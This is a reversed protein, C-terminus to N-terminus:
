TTVKEIEKVFNQGKNQIEQLSSTSESTKLIKIIEETSEVLHNKRDDIFDEFYLLAGKDVFVVSTQYDFCAFAAASYRTICFDTEELLCPLPLNTSEEFEINKIGKFATQIESAMSADTSPHFRYLWQWNQPCKNILEILKSTNWQHKVWQHIFLIKKDYKNNTNIINIKPIKIENNKYKQIWLNGGSIPKIQNTDSVKNFFSTQIEGWTVYYDPIFKYRINKRNWHLFHHTICGHQIDFTPIGLHKSAVMIAYSHISRFYCCTFVSIPSKIKLLYIYYKIYFFIDSTFYIFKSYDLNKSINLEDYIENISYIFNNIERLIKRHFFKFFINHISNYQNYLYLSTEESSHFDIKEASIPEQIIKLRDAQSYKNIAEFYPDKYHNYKKERFYEKFEVGDPEFIFLHKNNSKKLNKILNKSKIYCWIGKLFSVPSKSSKEPTNPHGANPSFHGHFLNDYIANRLVPWLNINSISPSLSELKNQITLTLEIAKSLEIKM